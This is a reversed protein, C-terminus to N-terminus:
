GWPHLGLREARIASDLLPASIGAVSFSLPQSRTAEYEAPSMSLPVEVGYLRALADFETDSFEGMPENNNLAEDLRAETQADVEPLRSVTLGRLGDRRYRAIKAVSETVRVSGDDNLAVLGKEAWKSIAAKGVGLFSAFQQQNM